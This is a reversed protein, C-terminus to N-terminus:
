LVRRLGRYGSVVAMESNIRLGWDSCVSCTGPMIRRCTVARWWDWATAVCKWRGSPRSGPIWNACAAPRRTARTSLHRKAGSGRVLMSSSLGARPMYIEGRVELVAPYGAGALALPISRITRVNHTIDEGTTGDGRTAGRELVGDRYLLSVAIGDLKPECAYELTEFWGGLRDLLRRNFSAYGRRRFANDLSLMPVDHAVQRFQSLPEGGVRQSPFRHALEPISRSWNCCVSCVGITNQM